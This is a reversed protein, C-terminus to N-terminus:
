NQTKSPQRQLKHFTGGCISIKCLGFPFLTQVILFALYLSLVFLKKKLDQFIQAEQITCM